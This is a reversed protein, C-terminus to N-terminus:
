TRHRNFYLKAIFLFSLIIFTLGFIKASKKDKKITEETPYINWKINRLTYEVITNIDELIINSLRTKNTKSIRMIVHYKTTKKALTALTDLTDLM